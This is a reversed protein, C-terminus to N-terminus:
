PAMAKTSQSQKKLHQLFRKCKIYKEQSLGVSQSHWDDISDETAIIKIFDRKLSLNRDSYDIKSYEDNLKRALVSTGYVLPQTLVATPDNIPEMRTYECIMNSKCSKSICKNYLGRNEPYTDM